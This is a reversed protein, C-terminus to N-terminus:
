VGAPLGERLLRVANGGMVAAIENDEFGADILAQTVASLHATDFGTTVTGDFDSGLAVHSIGVLDRVYKIARATAAPTAACVAADWYGIGIVGGNAAIARIQDDTLNRNTNCVAKVGGHSYVTPRRAIRLVDAITADSAHALDVLMDRDELAHVVQVGFPTLGTKHLGHKSGAVENDFFHALGVMRFGADYLRQVNGLQGELNQAGEVSLLAGTIRTGRARERLLRDLDARSRVITLRGKSALEARRLKEAHWLSRELLSNWTRMPQLQAVALMTINDTDSGNAEYNQGKPTKTVSSFVQLAVNGAELRPLDVHGHDHLEGVNRQWLLSDSHLDIVTLTAHLEKAHASVPWVGSGEVRNMTRDVIGPALLIGIVGLLVVALLGWRLWRM